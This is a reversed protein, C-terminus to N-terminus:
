WYQGDSLDRIDVLRGTVSSIMSTTGGLLDGAQLDQLHYRYAEVISEMHPSHYAVNVQLKRAFIGADDLLLRLADIQDNNGSVTINSPSNICAVTLRPDPFLYKVEEFYPLIDTESLAVSIMAGQTASKSDPITAALKGRFYAVKCASHMSLGGACYAAAIEGSSHGVVTAPRVGLTRLLNVLAIQLVTCLPQSYEPSNIELSDQADWMKGAVTWPCGLKQLYRDCETITDRFADFVVCDKGMRRYQAGQGTFVFGIGCGRQNKSRIAPAFRLNPLDKVSNVVAFSRWPLRSRRCELTYALNSLYTKEGSTKRDLAQQFHQVYSSNLRSLGQEDASSWVLLKFDDPTDNILADQHHAENPDPSADLLLRSPQM